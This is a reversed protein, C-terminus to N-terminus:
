RRSAGVFFYVKTGGSDSMLASRLGPVVDRASAPDALLLAVRWRGPLDRLRTGLSQYLPRLPQKGGIRRGWPPNTVVAGPPMAPHTLGPAHGLAACDIAIDAAVGAREANARAAAVAGADRDSAAIPPATPRAAALARDRAAAWLPADFLPGDMFAFRRLHGPPLGRALWAAEIAITGSGCLPDVLPTTRDWGSAILLARALDERLPAKASALRYGRRHLLEGSTDVALTCRDAVIRALVAHEPADATPAGLRRAVGAAVREAIAGSHYLRSRHAVARVTVRAHPPLFLEWPLEGARRALDGLQDVAFRGVTLQARLALGTELHVRHLLLADGSAAVGGEEIAAAAPALARVEAYLLAELGPACALFLDCRTNM